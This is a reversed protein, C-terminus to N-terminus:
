MGAWENDNRRPFAIYYLAVNETKRWTDRWLKGFMGEPIREEKKIHTHIQPINTNAPTHCSFMPLSSNSLPYRGSGALRALWVAGPVAPRYRRLAPIVSLDDIHVGM